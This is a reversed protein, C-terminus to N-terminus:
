TKEVTKMNEGLLKVNGTYVLLQYTGRLKLGEKGLPM